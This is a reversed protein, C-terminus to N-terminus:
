HELGPELDGSRPLRGVGSMAADTYGTSSNDYHRATFEEHDKEDSESLRSDSGMMDKWTGLVTGPM